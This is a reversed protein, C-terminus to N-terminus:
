TQPGQVFVASAVQAEVVIRWLTKHYARVIDAFLFRMDRMPGVTRAMLSLPM